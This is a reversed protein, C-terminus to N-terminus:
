ANNYRRKANEVGEIHALRREHDLAIARMQSVETKLDRIAESLRIREERIGWWAVAFLASIVFQIVDWIYGSPM